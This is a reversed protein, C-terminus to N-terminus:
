KNLADIFGSLRVKKFSFTSTNCYSEDSPKQIYLAIVARQVNDVIEWNKSIYIDTVSNSNDKHNLALGVDDKSFRCINRAQDAFAHRLDYFQLEPINLKAGLARMGFSLAHDLAEQTGYREQLKGAYKTFLALAVEPINLSIFARDKRRKATKSRNYGLRNLMKEDPVPLKFLDVANMGCLYFSLMALEAAQHERSDKQVGIMNKLPYDPDIAIQKRHALIQERSLVNVDRIQKVQAITLKPKTSEPSEVIKYNAFPYHKIVEIGNEKDNYHLVAKNFLIRLDRMHNHLGGATVGKTKRPRMIEFQDPRMVTRPSKLHEEYKVLMKSTIDTIPVVTSHFFDQLGYVVAKMNDRSGKRGAKDLLGIQQWGFKVIDIGGAKLEGQELFTKLTQATHLNLKEGLDSIRKRYEDLVPNLVMLLFQDKITNDARLQKQVVFHQTDLYATSRKYSIRIKVNMTGDKKKNHPLVVERITAM